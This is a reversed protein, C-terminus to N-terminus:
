SWAPKGFDSPLLHVISLNRPGARSVTILLDLTSGTSGCKLPEYAPFARHGNIKRRQKPPDGPPQDIEQATEMEIERGLKGDVGEKIFGAEDRTWLGAGRLFDNGELGKVKLAVRMTFTPALLFTVAVM